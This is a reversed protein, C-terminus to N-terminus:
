GQDRVRFGLGSGLIKTLCSHFHERTGYVNFRQAEDQGSTSESASRQIHGKTSRLSRYFRTGLYDFWEANDIPTGECTCRVEQRSSKHFVVCKCKSINVTLQHAQSFRSLGDLLKQLETATLAVLALDDAYLLAQVLANM